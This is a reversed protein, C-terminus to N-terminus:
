DHVDGLKDLHFPESGTWERNDAKSRIEDGCLFRAVREYYQRNTEGPIRKLNDELTDPMTPERTGTSATTDAAPAPRPSPIELGANFKSAANLLWVRHENDGHLIANAFELIKTQWDASAPRALARIDVAIKHCLSEYLKGSVFEAVGEATRAAQEIAANWETTGTMASNM